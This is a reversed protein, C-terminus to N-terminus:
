NKVWLSPNAHAIAKAHHGINMHEEHVHLIMHHNLRSDGTASSLYTKRWRLASFSKEWLKM